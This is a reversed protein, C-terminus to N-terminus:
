RSWVQSEVQIASRGRRLRKMLWTQEIKLRRLVQQAAALSADLDSDPLGAGDARQGYQAVTFRSLAEEMSELEGPRRGNDSRAIANAMSRATASGSVAVQKTKPWGVNVIIRGDHAPAHSPGNGTASSVNSTARRQDSAASSLQQSVSSQRSFVASRRSIVTRAAQRGLAYTGIIRLAALARAALDATWGGDERARQVASLERGVSRLIAGDGVLRDAAAVPARTRLYLRVLTLIGVLATLAFLVGGIVIFLSARFSRRDVDGFTESAADRIDSADAPVLSLVRMALPPLLYTQDRGEVATRQAVRSQIRYTLKTEPLPVDKGFMNEALLRLRYEYQFFRREGNRLDAAHQGGLVEFPVFQAVSPELHSEDVVVKVQETEVVACTLIASFVEGIRVAGSSARWWCQLPDTEVNQAAASSPILAAAIIFLVVVSPVSCFPPCPKKRQQDSHGGAVPKM